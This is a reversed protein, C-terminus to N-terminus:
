AEVITPEHLVPFNCSSAIYCQEHATEHLKTALTIDGGAAITVHPRLVVETFKGGNRDAMMTGSADDEYTMVRIGQLACLALYSLMHCSSLSAVLLDEPNHLTRDGRFSPDASGTIKPKGEVDITYERGYAAYSSTGTGKNGNWILHAKYHHPHPSLEPM